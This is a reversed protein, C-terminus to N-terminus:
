GTGGLFHFAGDDADLITDNSVVLGSGGTQRSLNPRTEGIGFDLHYRRLATSELDHAIADRDVLFRFCTPM